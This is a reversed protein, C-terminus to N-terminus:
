KYAVNLGLVAAAAVSTNDTDSNGTVLAYAIGTSFYHGDLDLAFATNAALYFTFIPTDSAPAPASAKNYFKLYTVTGANFGIVKYVAGASGKASTANNSAAASIIRSTLTSANDVATTVPTSNAATTQGNPNATIETGASTTNVTPLPYTELDVVNSKISKKYWRLLNM